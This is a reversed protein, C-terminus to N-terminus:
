IIIITDKGAAAEIEAAMGESIGYRAGIIITDCTNLIDKGAKLGRRRQAPIDDNLIQPLYLHTAIPTYGLELAVRTIHRAYAINRIRKYANGRYPSCIYALKNKVARAITNKDETDYRDFAKSANGQKDNGIVLVKKKHVAALIYAMNVATTTKAVGGKLSIISITQM